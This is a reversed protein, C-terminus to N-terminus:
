GEGLAKLQQIIKEIRERSHSVTSTRLEDRVSALEEAAQLVEKM